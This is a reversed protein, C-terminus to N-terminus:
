SCIGAGCPGWLCRECDCQRFHARLCHQLPGDGVCRGPWLVIGSLVAAQAGNLGLSITQGATSTNTLVLGKRNPNAVVIAVVVTVGVAVRTPHWRRSCLVM